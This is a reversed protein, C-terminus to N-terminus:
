YGLEAKRQDATPLPDKKKLIAPAGSDKLRHSETANFEIATAFEGPLDGEANFPKSPANRLVRRAILAIGPIFSCNIIWNM